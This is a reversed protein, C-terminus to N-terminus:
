ARDERMAIFLSIKHSKIRAKDANAYSQRIELDKKLARLDSIQKGLQAMTEDLKLIIATRLNEQEEVDKPSMMDLVGPMAEHLEAALNSITLYETCPLSEITEITHM